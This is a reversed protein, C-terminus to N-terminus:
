TCCELPRIRRLVMEQVPSALLLAAPPPPTSLSLLFFHRRRGGVVLLQVSDISAHKREALPQRRGGRRHRQDEVDPLQPAQWAVCADVKAFCHSRSAASGQSQTPARAQMAARPTLPGTADEM